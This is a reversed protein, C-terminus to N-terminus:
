HDAGRIVIDIYDIGYSYPTVRITYDGAREVTFQFSKHVESNKYPSDPISGKLTEDKSLYVTSKGDPDFLEIKVSGEPSSAGEHVLPQMSVAVYLILPEGEKELPVIATKTEGPSISAPLLHDQKGCDQKYCIATGPFRGRWIAPHQIEQYNAFWVVAFITGGAIVMTLFTIFLLNNFINMKRM